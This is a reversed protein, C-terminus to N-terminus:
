PPTVFLLRLLPPQTYHGTLPLQYGTPAPPLPPAQQRLPSLPPAGEKWSLSWDGSETFKVGLFKAQIVPHFDQLSLGHRANRLGDSTTARPREPQWARFVPELLFPLGHYAFPHSISRRSSSDATRKLVLDLTMRGEGEHWHFQAKYAWAQEVHYAGAGTTYGHDRRLTICFGPLFAKSGSKNRARTDTVFVGRINGSGAMIDRLTAACSVHIVPSLGDGRAGMIRTANDHVFLVLNLVEQETACAHYVITQGSRAPRNGRHHPSTRGRRVVGSTSTQGNM